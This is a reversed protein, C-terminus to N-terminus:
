WRSDHWAEAQTELGNRQNEIILSESNM